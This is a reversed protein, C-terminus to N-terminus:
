RPRRVPLRPRCSTATRRPRCVPRPRNATAPSRRRQPSNRGGHQQRFRRRDLRRARRRWGRPRLRQERDHQKVVTSRPRGGGAPVPPRRRRRQGPQGPDPERRDHGPRQRRVAPRTPPLEGAVMVGGGEDYSQNFWIRNNTINRRRQRRQRAAASPGIRAATSRRSTAACTTTTSRYGDSGAFLGIGGALNTGGNDRIQNYAIEAQTSQTTDDYPTGVRIAGGYSGSNGVIVNDTIQVNGNGHM